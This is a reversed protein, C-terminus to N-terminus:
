FLRSYYQRFARFRPVTVGCLPAPHFREDRRDFRVVGPTSPDNPDYVVFDVTDPGGMRGGMRYDFVLVSHNLEIRPFDTVFLQVPRGAQLEAVTERAVREQQGPLSPFTMRWNTPHVLTWFRGRLGAKVAAEEAGSFAHLSPYGPIVVRHADPLPARRAGRRIVRWVRAAYAEPHLRPADPEFRAFRQFQGVARAMLFCRNCYIDPKGRHHIRSDNRFAFTEVGFGLVPGPSPQLALM